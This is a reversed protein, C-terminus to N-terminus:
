GRFAGAFRSCGSRAGANEMNHRDSLQHLISGHLNIFIVFYFNIISVLYTGKNCCEFEFLKAFHQVFTPNEEGNM